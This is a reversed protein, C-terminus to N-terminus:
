GGSGGISAVSWAGLRGHWRWSSRTSSRRCRLCRREERHASRGNARGIAWECGRLKLGAARRQAALAALVHVHTPRATALSEFAQLKPCLWVTAPQLKPADRRTAKVPHPDRVPQPTGLYGLLKRYNTEDGTWQCEFVLQLTELDPLHLLIQDLTDMMGGQVVLTRIPPPRGDVGKSAHLFGRIDGVWGQQTPIRFQSFVELALTDLKPATLQVFPLHPFTDLCLCKIRRLEPLLLRENVNLSTINPQQLLMMDLDELAPTCRLIAHLHNSSFRTSRNFWFRLRRCNQLGVCASHHQAPLPVGILEVDKLHPLNLVLLQEAVVQAEADRVTHSLTLELRRLTGATREICPVVVSLLDPTQLTLVLEGVRNHCTRLYEQVMRSHAGPFEPLDMEVNLLALKSRALNGTYTRGLANASGYWPHIPDSDADALYKPNVFRIHTWLSSTDLAVARWRHSIRSVLRSFENGVAVFAHHELQLSDHGEQFIQCLIDDPLRSVPALADNRKEAVERFHQHLTEELEHM